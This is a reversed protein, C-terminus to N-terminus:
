LNIQECIKSKFLFDKPYVNTFKQKELPNKIRILLVLDFENFYKFHDLTSFNCVPGILNSCSIPSLGDM